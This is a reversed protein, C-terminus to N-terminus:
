SASTPETKPQATLRQQPLFPQRFATEFDYGAQFDARSDSETKSLLGHEVLNFVIEGFDECRRVGWEALVTLAMPGYTTLAYNKIGNLLEQGSVHRAENKNPKAIGKQTHDLAERLFIYAESAYRPDRGVITALAEEYNPTQM